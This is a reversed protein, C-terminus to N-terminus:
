SDHTRRRKGKPPPELSPARKFTVTHTVVHQIQVTRGYPSAPSDTYRRRWEAPSLTTRVTYPSQPSETTAPSYLYHPSIPMRRVPGLGHASRPALTMPSQPVSMPGRRVSESGHFSSGSSASSPMSVPSPLPRGFHWRTVGATSPPEPSGFAPSLARLFETYALPPPVSPGTRRGERRTTESSVNPNDQLESPFSMNKPTKLPYLNPRPAMDKINSQKGCFYFPISSSPHGVLM